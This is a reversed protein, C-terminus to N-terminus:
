SQHDDLMGSEFRNVVVTGVADGAVNVTTRCMDLLRDVGLILGIGELPLGVAHLVMAMTVLGASPIGAAGVSAGMATLFILVQAGIGLSVGYAQAIFMAAVAEYLATGDMNITAGLPLVFSGVRRPVKLNRETCRMTVPLTASSSSTSFAILLAERVGAIFQLLGMRGVFRLLPLLVLIVHMGLAILVTAMYWGLSELVQLGGKAVVGAMLAFVGFPALWMAYGVLWLMADNAGGFVVLVPKGKEGIAVLALGFILAFFIISLVDGQALAAFPNQLATTVMENVVGGFTQPRGVLIEPVSEGLKPVGIGPKILNVLTLGIVVAGATTILYYAVTKGGMTGLRRVDGLNGVGVILSTFILPAILMKLVLLFVRGMWGIYSEVDPLCLGVVIGLGLSALIFHHLKLRM